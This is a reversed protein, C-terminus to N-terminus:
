HPTPVSGCVTGFTNNSWTDGISSTDEDADCVGNRLATNYGFHSYGGSFSIGEHSNNSFISNGVWDGTNGYLVLGAWSNEADVGDIILEDDDEGVIALEQCGSVSTNFITTGFSEDVHIGEFACRINSSYSGGTDSELFLGIYAHLNLGTAVVDTNAYFVAPTSATVNSVTTGTTNQIMLSNDFGGVINCNKISIGNKSDAYIAAKVGGNAKTYSSIHVQHNACDLTINEGDFVVDGYRDATLTTNSHIRLEGYQVALAENALALTGM